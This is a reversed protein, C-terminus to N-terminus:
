QLTVVHFRIVSMTKKRGWSLQAVKYVSSTLTLSGHCFARKVKPTISTKEYILYYENKHYVVNYQSGSYKALYKYFNFSDESLIHFFNMTEKDVKSVFWM